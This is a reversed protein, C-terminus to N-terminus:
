LVEGQVRVDITERVRTVRQHNHSGAHGARRTCMTVVITRGGRDTHTVHGCLDTTVPRQRRAAPGLDFALQQEHMNQM